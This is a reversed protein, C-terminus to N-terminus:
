LRLDALVDLGVDIVHNDFAGVFIVENGVEGLGEGVEPMVALLEVQLLTDRHGM